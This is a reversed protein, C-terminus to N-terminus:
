IIFNPTTKKITESKKQKSFAILKGLDRKLESPKTPKPAYPQGIIKPLQEITAKLKDYTIQRALDDIAQRETKNKFFEKYMPNVDKFGEILENIQNGQLFDKKSTNDNNNKNDKNYTDQKTNKQQKETTDDTTNNGQWVNYKVITILTTIENNQQIIDGDSELCKLYRRVKDRSWKWRSALTLQSYALQGRKVEVKIGRVFFFNDTHQALGFLDVWAQARTFKESLWRSSHLLERNVFFFNKEANNKM